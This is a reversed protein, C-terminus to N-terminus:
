KAFLAARHSTFTPSPPPITTPAPTTPTVREPAPLHISNPSPTRIIRETPPPAHISTIIGRDAM